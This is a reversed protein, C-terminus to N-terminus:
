VNLPLNTWITNMTVKIGYKEVNRYKTENIYIRASKTTMGRVMRSVFKIFQEVCCSRIVSCWINQFLKM